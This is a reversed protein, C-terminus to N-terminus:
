VILNRIESQLSTGGGLKACLEAMKVLDTKVMAQNSVQTRCQEALREPTLRKPLRGALDARWEAKSNASDSWQSYGDATPETGIQWGTKIGGGYLSSAQRQYAVRARPPKPCPTTKKSKARLPYAWKITGESRDQAQARLIAIEDLTMGTIDTYKM